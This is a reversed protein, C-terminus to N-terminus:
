LLVTLILTGAAVFLTATQHHLVWRLTRGYSEIIWDCINESKQFLWGVLDGMFLLPILVTVLAITLSMITFAIQESDKFTTGM